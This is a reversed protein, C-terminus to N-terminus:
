KKFKSTKYNELTGWEEAEWASDGRRNGNRDRVIRGIHFIHMVFPEVDEVGDEVSKQSGLRSSYALEGQRRRSINNDAPWRRTFHENKYLLADHQAISQQM